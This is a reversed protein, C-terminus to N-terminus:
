DPNEDACGAQYPDGYRLLSSTADGGSTIIVLYLRDYECAEDIASVPDGGLLSVMQPTTNSHGVVLHAGSTQKLQEALSAMGASSPAYIRVPLGLRDALPTATSKTRNYDTSYVSQISATGLRQALAQARAAGEATLPPNRTGDSAKEAHRVLYIVTEADPEGLSNCGTVFLVACALAMFPHLFKKFRMM